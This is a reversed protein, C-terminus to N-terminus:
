NKKSSDPLILEVEVEWNARLNIQESPRYIKEPQKASLYIGTDWKGNNNSDWIILPQYAGPSLRELIFDASGTFKIETAVVDKEGQLQLIYSVGEKGSIHLKLTGYDEQRKTTITLKLSDNIVGFYDTFTGPPFIVTYKTEAKKPFDIEIKRQVADAFRIIFNKSEIIQSDQLIQIGSFDAVRAPRNLFATLKDAPHISSNNTSILIKNTKTKISDRAESTRVHFTDVVNKNLVIRATDSKWARTYWITISDRAPNYETIGAPTSDNEAFLVASSVSGSLFLRLGAPNSDDRSLVKLPQDREEQFLLISVPPVATDVQILSDSFGIEENPLDYIYNFNEDKLACIKYEDSKINELVFKGENNTKTFYAPKKKMVVSDSKDRYLMVLIKESPKGTKAQKVTGAVSLSDLKDGTSFVYKFDSLINGENADRLAEGFAITYTTFSDPESNFTILLKRGKVKFEPEPEIAPSVIIERAPNNLQIYENFDIEIKNGTFRTSFNKPTSATIEPPLEDKPGGTPAIINACSNLILIFFILIGYLPQKGADVPHVSNERKSM